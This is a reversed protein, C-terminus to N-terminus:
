EVEVTNISYTYESYFQRFYKLLLEAEELTRAMYVLRYHPFKDPYTSPILQLIEHITNM